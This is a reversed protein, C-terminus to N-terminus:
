AEAEAVRNRLERVGMKKLDSFLAAQAPKPSTKGQEFNYVTQMSVGLLAAISRASVGARERYARWTTGNFRVKRESSSPAAVATAAEVRQTAKQLRAVDKELSEVQRRLNAIHHRHSAVLKRTTKDHGRIERLAIRKIESRLEDVLAM